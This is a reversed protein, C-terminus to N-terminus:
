HIKIVRPRLTNVDIDFLSGKGIYHGGSILISLLLVAPGELLGGM